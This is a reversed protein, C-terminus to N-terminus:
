ESDSIEQLISQGQLHNISEMYDINMLKDVDRSIYAKKNTNLKSKLWTDQNVGYEKSMAMYVSKNSYREKLKTSNQQSKIDKVINQQDGMNKSQIGYLCDVVFTRYENYTENDNLNNYHM